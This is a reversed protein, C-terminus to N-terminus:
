DIANINILFTQIRGSLGDAVYLMDGEVTLGSINSFNDSVAGAGGIKGVQFAGRAGQLNFTRLTNNFDDGVFVLNDRSAAITGPESFSDAAFAYRFSGDRGLVVVQKALRDIAYIGGTGVAIASISKVQPSKIISLMMGANSFIVIHNYLGDAVLVRGSREDVTVSIPRALNGPSSLAPLVNGDGTFHLVKGYSPSTIYVSQDAAAYISMGAEVPLNVAFPSLTQQLNDYRFIRRLGADVLYLNNGRVSIATPRQLMVYDTGLSGSSMSMQAGTIELWPQLLDRQATDDVLGTTCGALFLASIIIPLRICYRLKQAFKLKHQSARYQRVNFIQNVM